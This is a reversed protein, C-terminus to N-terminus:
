VYKEGLIENIAKGVDRFNLINDFLKEKVEGNGNNDSDPKIDAM